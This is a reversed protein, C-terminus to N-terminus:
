FVFVVVEGLNLVLSVVDILRKGKVPETALVKM